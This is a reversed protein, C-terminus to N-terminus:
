NNVIRAFLDINVDSIVNGKISHPNNM